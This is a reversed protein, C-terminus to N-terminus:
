AQKISVARIFLEEGIIYDGDFGLVSNGNIEEPLELEEGDEDFYEGSEALVIHSRITLEFGESLKELCLYERWSDVWGYRERDDIIILNMM